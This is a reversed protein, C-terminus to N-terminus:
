NEQHNDIKKLLVIRNNKSKLQMFGYNETIYNFTHQHFFSVHTIDNVYHWKKFAEATTWLETMVVLLGGPKLLKDLRALEIAPYFFHEFCETAFIFDYVKDPMVPFFLPDYDDCAIGRNKLMVSLTPAPGCGYDLGNQTANIYPLAPEIAQNLFTVYGPFQMGNNHELYRTREEQASPLLQTEIFILKCNNCGNFTRSDLGKLFFFSKPNYCLPCEMM